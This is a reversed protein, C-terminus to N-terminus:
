APRALPLAAATLAQAQQGALIRTECSAQVAAQEVAALAAQLETDTPASVAILGTYRCVGHGSALDAEQTLVDQYEAQQAADEIQGVRARQTQDALHETKKKRLDRAAQDARMPEVLLSFSRRIGSSLLLPALFGPFVQSRPWESIWLVAHFATDTRLSAWSERVAVPGALAPDRGLNPDAELRRAADPDYATRLAFALDAPGLWKSVHLDAARLATTLTALEQGLVRAAGKIGGGAGKVAKAATKLDLAVSITTQHRESAPGARDILERYVWATWSGDDRGHERWWDALGTGSDPLVRELVQVRAIRGSRCCSALVRGWAQVRREQDLPDLLAFSPHSVEAVATLTQRRPDHVMVAGTAPDQHQRLSAADGPLALTGAPRPKSVRRQYVTQGGWERSAWRIVIPAWEILKRGGVGALALCGGAGWVPATWAVGTGGGGYLGAVLAAAAVALCALRPGSLGLLRGRKPLRSFKVPRL